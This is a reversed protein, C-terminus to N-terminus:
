TKKELIKNMQTLEEDSLETPMPTRSLHIHLQLSKLKETEENTLELSWINQGVPQNNTAKNTATAQVAKRAFRVLLNWCYDREAIITDLKTTM